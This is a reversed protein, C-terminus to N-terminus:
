GDDTRPLDAYAVAEAREALKQNGEVKECRYFLHRGSSPSKDRPLRALLGPRAKEVLGRFKEIPAIAEIDLIELAAGDKGSVKGGVIGLGPYKQVWNALEEDTPKRAQYIKWSPYKEGKSPKRGQYASWHWAPRKEGAEIPVLSLGSAVYERASQL